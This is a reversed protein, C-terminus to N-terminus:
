PPPPRGDSPARPCLGLYPGTRSTSWTEGPPSCPGPGAPECLELESEGIRMITRRAGLHDSHTERDTQAGLLTAFTEAARARDRVAIQMRDVRELM